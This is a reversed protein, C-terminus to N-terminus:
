SGGGGGPPSSSGGGGGPPSSSGGGGGPPSSSGGGGGPPSSSGGGGGPPSSSGGGGPPSSSGGGGPPACHPATITDNILTVAATSALLRGMINDNAGVGIMASALVTGVFTTGSKLTASSGVQWFVNCAQAGGALKITTGTDTVLTTGTQFIFVASADGDLTLTGGVDLSSTANYVGPGLTSAGHIFGPISATKTRGAADNYATTLASQASAASADAAHITGHIVTGDPAGTFGTVATGPSVGLDGSVVSPGTNTVTSGALVAYSDATGLGVAGTAANASQSFASMAIAVTIAIAIAIVPGAALWFYDARRPSARSSGINRM